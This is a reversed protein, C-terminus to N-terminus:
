WLWGLWFHGYLVVTGAVVAWPLWSRGYAADRARQSLTRRKTAVLWLEIGILWGFAVFWPWGSM